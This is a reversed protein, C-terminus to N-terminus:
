WAPGTNQPNHTILGVRRPKPGSLKRGGIFSQFTVGNRDCTLGDTYSGILALVLGNLPDVTEGDVYFLSPKPGPIRWRHYAGNVTVFTLEAKDSGPHGVLGYRPPFTDAGCPGSEAQVLCDSAADINNRLSVASAAATAIDAAVTYWTTRYLYGAGDRLSLTNRWIPM